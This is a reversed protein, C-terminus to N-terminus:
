RRRRRCGQEMFTEVEVEAATFDESIAMLLRRAGSRPSRRRVIHILGDGVQTTEGLLPHQIGVDLDDVDHPGFLLTLVLSGPTGGDAM